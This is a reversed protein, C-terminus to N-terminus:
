NKDPGASMTRGVLVGGRAHALSLQRQRLSMIATLVQARYSEIVLLAGRPQAALRAPTSDAARETGHHRHHGEPRVAAPGPAAGTSM